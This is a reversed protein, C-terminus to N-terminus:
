AYAETRKKQKAMEWMKAIWSERYKKSKRQHKDGRDIMGLIELTRICGDFEQSHQNVKPWIFAWNRFMVFLFLFNAAATTWDPGILVTLVLLAMTTLEMYMSRMHLLHGERMGRLLTDMYAAISSLTERAKEKETNEKLQEMETKM